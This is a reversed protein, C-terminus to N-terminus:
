GSAPRRNSHTRELIEAQARMYSLNTQFFTRQAALQGLYGIEGQEYGRTVLDLTRRAKPLIESSYMEVEYRSSGYRKFEDVLRDRLQLELREINREAAIIEARAQRVAGQNRDWIPLPIGVQVATLVDDTITEHQVTAQVGIDPKVQALARQFALRARSLEAAASAIEPSQRLLQDLVDDWVIVDVGQELDGALPQQELNPNGIM